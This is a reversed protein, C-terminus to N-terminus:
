KMTSNLQIELHTSSHLSTIASAFKHAVRTTALLGESFSKDLTMLIVM